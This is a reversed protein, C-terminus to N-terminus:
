KAWAPQPRAKAAEALRHVAERSSVDVEEVTAEYGANDFIEAASKANEVRRDALVIHKGVGVRRAISQGIQGAGIVVVVQRM